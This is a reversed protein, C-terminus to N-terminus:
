AMRDATREAVKSLLLPLCGPLQTAPGLPCDPAFNDPLEPWAPQSAAAGRRRGEAGSGAYNKECEAGQFRGM